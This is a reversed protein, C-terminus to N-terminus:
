FFLPIKSFSSLDQLWTSWSEAMATTKWLTLSALTVAIIKAVGGKAEFQSFFSM